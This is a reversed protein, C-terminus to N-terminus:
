CPVLLRIIIYNLPFFFALVYNLLDNCDSALWMAMGIIIAAFVATMAMKTQKSTQGALGGGGGGGAGGTFAKIATGLPFTLVDTM